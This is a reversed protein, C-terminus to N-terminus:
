ASFSLSDLNISKDNLYLKFVNITFLIWAIGFPIALVPPFEWYERGGFIGLIYSSLISIMAALFFFLQWKILKNSWIQGMVKRQYHLVVGCSTILIWFVASSVHLPRVKEFSFNSRFLGPIVYQLAGVVGFVIAIFLFILGVKIFNVETRGKSPEM